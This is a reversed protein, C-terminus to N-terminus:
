FVGGSSYVAEPILYVKKGNELIIYAPEHPPVFFARSKLDIEKNDSLDRIWKSESISDKEFFRGGSKVSKRPIRKDYVLLDLLLRNAIVGVDVTKRWISLSTTEPLVETIM